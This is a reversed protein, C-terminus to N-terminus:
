VMSLILELKCPILVKFIVTVVNLPVYVTELIRMIFKVTQVFDWRSRSKRSSRKTRASNPSRTARTCVVLLPLSSLKRNHNLLKM